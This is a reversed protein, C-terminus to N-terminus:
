KLLLLKKSSSYRGAELRYFYVGSAMERGYDDRGNWIVSYYGPAQEKNVLTRVRQGLVNYIKLSVASQQDSVAPLQYRILTTPNFPNPFNQSLSYEKPLTPEFSPEGKVGVEPGPWSMNWHWFGASEIYHVDSSMGIVPQAISVGLLYSNSKAECGSSSVADSLILYGAESAVVPICFFLTSLLILSIKLRQM